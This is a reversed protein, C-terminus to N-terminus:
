VTVTLPLGVTSSAAVPLLGVMLPATTSALPLVMSPMARPLVPEDDTNASDPLLTPLATIVSLEILLVEPPAMLMLTLPVPILMVNVLTDDVPLEVLAIENLSARPENVALPPVSLLAPPLVTLMVPLPM